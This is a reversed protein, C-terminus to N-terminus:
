AEAYDESMEPDGIVTFEFSTTNTKAVDGGLNVPAIMCRGSLKIKGAKNPVFEFNAEKGRNDYCWKLLSGTGYDQLMDGSIKSTLEGPEQYKDGSLVEIPDELKYDPSWETKTTQGSFDTPSDELTLTLKGPGLKHAKVAM